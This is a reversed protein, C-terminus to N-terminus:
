TTPFPERTAGEINPADSDTAFETQASTEVFPGGEEEPMHRDLMEQGESQASTVSEVYEYALESAGPDSDTTSDVFAATENERGARSLALLHAQYEPNLHGSGDRRPVPTRKTIKM